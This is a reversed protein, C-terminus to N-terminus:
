EPGSEVPGPLSKYYFVMGVCVMVLVAAALRMRNRKKQQEKLEVKARFREVLERDRKEISYRDM